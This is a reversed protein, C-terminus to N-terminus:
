RRKRLKYVIGITGLALVGAGAYWVWTPVQEAQARGWAAPDEFMGPGYSMPQRTLAQTLLGTQNTVIRTMRQASASLTAAGLGHLAGRSGERIYISM